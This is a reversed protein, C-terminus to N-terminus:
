AAPKSDRDRDLRFEFLAQPVYVAALALVLLLIPWDRALQLEYDRQATFAGIAGVAVSIGFRGARNLLEFKCAPADSWYSALFVALSTLFCSGIFITTLM